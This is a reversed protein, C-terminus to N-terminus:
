SLPLEKFLDLTEAKRWVAHVKPFEAIDILGQLAFDLTSLMCAVTIDALKMEGDCLWDESRSYDRELMALGARVQMEWRAAGPEDRLNPERMFRDHILWNAKDAAALSIGTVRLCRVLDNEGAPFLSRAKDPRREFYDLISGSEVLVQGGELVMVPAKLMPNYHSFAEAQRFASIQEHDFEFEM